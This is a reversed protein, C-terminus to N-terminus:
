DEASKANRRGRVTMAFLISGPRGHGRVGYEVPKARAKVIPPSCARLVKWHEENRFFESVNITLFDM